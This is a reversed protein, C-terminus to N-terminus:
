GLELLRKSFLPNCRQRSGRHGTCPDGVGTNLDSRAKGIPGRLRKLGVVKEHRGSAARYRGTQSCLFQANLELTTVDLDIRLVSGAHRAYRSDAVDDRKAGPHVRLESMNGRCPIM